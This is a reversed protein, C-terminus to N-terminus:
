LNNGKMKNKPRSKSEFWEGCTDVSALLKNQYSLSGEVVVGTEINNCGKLPAFIVEDPISYKGDTSLNHDDYSFEFIRGRIGPDTTGFEASEGEPNGDLINYGKGLWELNAPIDFSASAVVIILTFTLLKM